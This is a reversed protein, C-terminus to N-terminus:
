CHGVVWVTTGTDQGEGGGTGRVGVGGGGNLCGSWVQLTAHGNGTIQTASLQCNRLPSGCGNINLTVTGHFSGEDTVTVTLNYESAVGMTPNSPSVSLNFDQAGACTTGLIALVLAAMLLRLTSRVARLQVIQM